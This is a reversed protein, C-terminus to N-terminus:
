SMLINNKFDYNDTTPITVIMLLLTYLIKFNSSSYIKFIVSVCHLFTFDKPSSVMERIM